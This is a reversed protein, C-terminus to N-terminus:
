VPSYGAGGNYLTTRETSTLVKKWFGVNQIRGNMYRSTVGRGITWESAGDRVGGSYSLTRITGSNNLEYNLTNNVADHWCTFFTWAGEAFGGEVNDLDGTVGNGTSSVFFRFHNGGSSYYEISFELEGVPNWKGIIDRGNSNISGTNLYVWGTITFGIDGTSLAANDAISLYQNSGNFSAANGVGGIGAAQGVGFNETLHNTSVSDSRTGSAEDLKWFAVLDTLLTNSNPKLAGGYRVGIQPLEFVHLADTTLRRSYARPEFAAQALFTFLLFISFFKRM